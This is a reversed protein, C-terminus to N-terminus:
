RVFEFTACNQRRLGVFQASRHMVPHRHNKSGGIVVLPKIRILDIRGFEQRQEIGIWRAFHDSLRDASVDVVHPVVIFTTDSWRNLLLQELSENRPMAQASIM